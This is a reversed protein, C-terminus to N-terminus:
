KGDILALAEPTLTYQIPEDDPALHDVEVGLWECHHFIAQAHNNTDTIRVLM